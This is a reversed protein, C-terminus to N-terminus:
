ESEPGSKTPHKLLMKKCNPIQCSVRCLDAGVARRGPRQCLGPDAAPPRIDEICLLDIGPAESTPSPAWTPDGAITAVDEPEIELEAMLDVFHLDCLCYRLEFGSQFRTSTPFNLLISCVM